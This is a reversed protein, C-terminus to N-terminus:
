KLYIRLNLFLFASALILQLVLHRQQEIKVGLELTLGDMSWVCARVVIRVM